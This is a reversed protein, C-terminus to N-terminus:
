RVISMIAALVQWDQGNTGCSAQRDGLLSLEASRRYVVLEQVLSLFGGVLVPTAFRARSALSRPTRALAEDTLM